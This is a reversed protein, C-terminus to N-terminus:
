MNLQKGAALIKEAAKLAKAANHLRGLLKLVDDDFSQVGLSVRSVPISKILSIFNNDTSEPNAEITWEVSKYNILKIINDVV